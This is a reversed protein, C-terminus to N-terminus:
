LDWTHEARSTTLLNRYNIPIWRPILHMKESFGRRNSLLPGKSTGKSPKLLFTCDTKGWMSSYLFLSRYEMYFVPFEKKLSFRKKLLDREIM